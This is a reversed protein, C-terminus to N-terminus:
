PKVTLWLLGGALMLRGPMTVDPETQVELLAAFPLGGRQLDALEAIGDCLRQPVGPLTLQTPLWREFRLQAPTLHLLWWFLLEGAKQLLYRAAQDYRTPSPLPLQM